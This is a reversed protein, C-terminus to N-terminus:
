RAAQRDALERFQQVRVQLKEVELDTVTRGDYHRLLDDYLPAIAAAEDAFNHDDSTRGRELSYTHVSGDGARELVVMGDPKPSDRLVEARTVEDPDCGLAAMADKLEEVTRPPPGSPTRRSAPQPTTAFIRGEAEAVAEAESGFVQHHYSVGRERLWSECRGDPLARFVTMGTLERAPDFAEARVVSRDSQLREALEEV